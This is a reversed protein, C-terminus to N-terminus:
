DMMIFDVIMDKGKQCGHGAVSKIRGALIEVKISCGKSCAKCDYQRIEVM